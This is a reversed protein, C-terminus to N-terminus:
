GCYPQVKRIRPAIRDLSRVKVLCTVTEMITLGAHRPQGLTNIAGHARNFACTAVVAIPTASVVVSWMLLVAIIVPNGDDTAIITHPVHITVRV